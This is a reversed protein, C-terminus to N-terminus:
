KKKCFDCSERSENMSKEYFLKIPMDGKKAVPKKSRLPNYVNEEFTYLNRVTILQQKYVQKLLDDSNNLYEKV